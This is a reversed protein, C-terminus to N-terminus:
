CCGMRLIGDAVDWFKGRLLLLIMAMFCSLSLLVMAAAADSFPAKLSALESPDSPIVTTFYFARLYRLEYLSVPSIYTEEM